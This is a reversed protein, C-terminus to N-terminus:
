QQKQQQWGAGTSQQWKQISKNSSTPQHQKQYNNIISKHNRHWPYLQQKAAPQNEKKTVVPQNNHCKTVVV